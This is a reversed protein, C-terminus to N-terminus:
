ARLVVELATGGGPQTRLKFGGGISASRARM